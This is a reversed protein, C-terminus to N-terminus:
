QVFFRAPVGGPFQLLGKRHLTELVEVLMPNNLSSYCETFLPIAMSPYTDEVM